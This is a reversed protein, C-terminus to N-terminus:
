ARRASTVDRGKIPVAMRFGCPAKGWRCHHTAIVCVSELAQTAMSQNELDDRRIEERPKPQSATDPSLM